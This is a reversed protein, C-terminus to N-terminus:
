RPSHARRKLVDVPYGATALLLIMLVIGAGLLFLTPPEPVPSVVNVSGNSGSVSLQAGTSDLFFLNALGIPSFGAGIATFDITSLVGSGNVGPGPGLLTDANFTIMGTTNDIFGPLFFTSGGGPLFAGETIGTASLVAPNFGIDFQFAALDVAGAIDVNLTFNSGPGVSSSAVSVVSDAKAQVPMLIMAM